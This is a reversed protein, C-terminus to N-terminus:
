EPGSWHAKLTAKAVIQQAQSVFATANKVDDRALPSPSNQAHVPVAALFFFATISVIGLLYPRKMRKPDSGRSIGPRAGVNRDYEDM